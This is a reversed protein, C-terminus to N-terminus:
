FSLLPFSVWLSGGGLDAEKEAPMMDCDTVAGSAMHVVAGCFLTQTGSMVSSYDWGLSLNGLEVVFANM